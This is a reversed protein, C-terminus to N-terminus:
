AVRVGLNLDATEAALQSKEAMERAVDEMDGKLYVAARGLVKHPIQGRSRRINFNSETLRYDSGVAALYENVLALAEAHGMVQDLEAPTPRTVRRASLPRANEARGALYEELMRRTFVINTPRRDGATRYDRRGVPIPELQFLTGPIAPDDYMHRRLGSRSLPRGGRAVLAANIYALAEAQNYLDGLTLETVETVEEMADEM